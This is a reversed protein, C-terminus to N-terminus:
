TTDGCTQRIRVLKNYISILFIAVIVILGVGAGLGILVPSAALFPTPISELM